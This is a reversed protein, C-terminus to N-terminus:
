FGTTNAHGRNMRLEDLEDTSLHGYERYAREWNQELTLDNGMVTHNRTGQWKEATLKTREFNVWLDFSEPHKARLRVLDVPGHFPCHQCNSPYPVEMGLARIGRQCGTRDLGLDILPYIRQITDRMFGAPADKVRRTENAAFGIMVPLPGYQDAYTYLAARTLRGVREPYGYTRAVYNNLAYYWPRLKTQASCVKNFLRTQITSNRAWQAHISPWTRPHFGLDSTVHIYPVNREACLAAFRVRYAETEDHEMGTDASMILLDGPVYKRRFAEDELCLAALMASDQGLGASLVTLPPRHGLRLLPTALSSRHLAPM